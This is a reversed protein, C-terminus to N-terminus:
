VMRMLTNGGQYAEQHAYRIYTHKSMAAKLIAMRQYRSRRRVLFRKCIATTNVLIVWSSSVGSVTIDAAASLM